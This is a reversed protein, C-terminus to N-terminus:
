RAGCQSLIAKPTRLLIKLDLWLSWSEEYQLDYNVMEEFSLRCRGNVQWLGTLGPKMRLRRATRSDYLAAERPLPPRPGILSMKGTLVNWLQPLEDISFRRLIRGIRTVRPDGALKFAGDLPEAKGLILARVYAQHISEDNGDVMTRLKWLTFPRGGAGLRVQRFIAPGPSTIRVAAMSLVLVPAALAALTIALVLDVARKCCRGCAPLDCELDEPRGQGDDFM